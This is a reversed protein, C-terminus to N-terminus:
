VTVSEYTQTGPRWVAGTWPRPDAVDECYRYIKSRCNSKWEEETMDTFRLTAAKSNRIAGGFGPLEVPPGDLGMSIWLVQARWLLNSDHCGAPPSGEDYQGIDLFMDAPMGIRGFTGDGYKQSWFHAACRRRTMAMILFLDEVEVFNDIDLNVLYGAGEHIGLRHACNKMKSCHWAEAPSVKMLILNENDGHNERIWEATEEPCDFDVVVLKFHSLM